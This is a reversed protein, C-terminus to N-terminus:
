LSPDPRVREAWRDRNSIVVIGALWSIWVLLMLVVYVIVIGSGHWPGLYFIVMPISVVIQLVATARVHGALLLFPLLWVLYQFFFGSGFALVLLWLVTSAIRHEPRAIAAYALFAVVVLGNDLGAHRIFLWETLGSPMVPHTLWRAALGPQLVLSLGGLGPVGSYHIVHRVGAGDAALFPLMAVVPVLVAAAALEVAERWSRATPLLAFVMLIPVSKIAAAIGVLLGAIWARRRMDREWVLLAVAAPLIAVSDIQAAYGSITVFVPGLAVLAAALLRARDTARGALGTWVVWTLLCDSLIAPLRVLHTFGGTVHAVADAALVFPFFGSLYPWHFEPTNIFGYVRLGHDALSGRLLRFSEIDFPLGTTEADVILRIVLGAVILGILAAPPRRL